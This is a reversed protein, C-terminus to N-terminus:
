AHPLLESAEQELKELLWTQILKQYPVGRRTALTEIAALYDSRIRVDLPSTPFETLKIDFVIDADDMQEIFPATDHTEVWEALEEETQFTPLKPM